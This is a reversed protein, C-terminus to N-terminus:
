VHEREKEKFTSGNTTLQFVSDDIQIQQDGYGKKEGKCTKEM